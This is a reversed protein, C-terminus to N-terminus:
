LDTEVSTLGQAERQAALAAPALRLTPRHENRLDVALIDRALIDQAADLALLREVASVPAAQPLLITQDRDLVLDWRRGGVRVLGRLREALPAAADLVALAEAAATEAGEGAILPLDPRDARAALSAVRHGGEDILDLRGDPRRWVMVPERETIVVQLVGGARVRLEASRV